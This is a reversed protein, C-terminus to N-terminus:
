VAESCLTELIERAIDMDHEHNERMCIMGRRLKQLHDLMHEVSSGKDVLSVIHPAYDDYEDAPALKGPALDMPDWRRLIAQVVRIRKMAKKKMAKHDSSM